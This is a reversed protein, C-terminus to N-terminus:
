VYKITRTMWKEEKMRRKKEQHSKREAFLFFVKFVKHQNWQIHDMVTQLDPGLEVRGAKELPPYVKAM